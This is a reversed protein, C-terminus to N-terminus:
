AGLPMRVTWIVTAHLSHPPITMSVNRPVVFTRPHAMRRPVNSVTQPLPVPLQLLLGDTPSVLGSSAPARVTLQNAVSIVSSVSSASDTVTKAALQTRNRTYTTTEAVTSNNVSDLDETLLRDNQDYAYTIEEDMTGDGRQHTTKELRNGLLDALCDATFDLTDDDSDHGERTLRALEGYFWQIETVRGQAAKETVATRRADARVTYDFEALVADVAADYQGDGNEDRYHRLFDLRNLEDYVYDATVGNPFHIEDLNGLSDFVYDTVEPSALPQDNRQHVEVRDVRGIEDYAYRTDTVAKADGAASTGDPDAVGTYSRM